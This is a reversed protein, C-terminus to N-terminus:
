AEWVKLQPHAQNMRTLAVLCADHESKGRSGMFERLMPAVLRAFAADEVALDRVVEILSLKAKRAPVPAVRKAGDTASAEDSSLKAPPIGFLERRLYASLDEPQGPATDPRQKPGPGAEPEVGRKSGKASKTYQLEVPTPKWHTTVGQDRYLSWITRVVFARLQRDPSETLRFLASPIALEEYRSILAMGIRRTAKDLSECFRYVGEENLLERGLRYHQTERGEPALFAREFFAKVDAYPQECLEVVEMLPPAWRALEWEGLEEGLKRLTPRAERLLPSVRAWSFFERPMEAGPDVQRETLAPGLLQHHHKIYTIAFDRLPTEAAGPGTAMEWLHECGAQTQDSSLERKGGVLMQLFATESIIKVESGETQLKEAKVMKSGKKGQGFLPSGEDGIVLYDLTKTVSGANKGNANDVKQEAEARTMTSLKGTFLFTLGKLDVAGGSAQAEVEAGAAAEPAFDAPVLAKLMYNLAFNHYDSELRQVLTMLWAFGLEAPSFQRVDRLVSRAFEGLGSDYELKRAWSRDSAKLEAVWPDENWGPHYALTRWFGVGFARAKLKEEQIWQRVTRSSMPHLISRRWFNVDIDEPAFHELLAVLAFNAADTRLTEEDFMSTFYDAGLSKLKHTKPLQERAFAVVKHESSLLREKFWAPTLEGAGFHKRLAAVAVDHGYATGLLAGWSALGVQDRPDLEDLLAFALKRVDANDNNALRILESLPLDRAHTRAYAAAYKRAEHSPSDLLRLVAEHLGLTRFSAEEFKPVNKLLWVVFEHVTASEVMVLRAVWSAEVERLVTRFDTKLAEVAFARVKEARARELLSFLPRPTRQWAEAFARHAIAESPASWFRFSAKGYAKGGYHKYNRYFIHNAIWTKNWNVGEPYFRLVDVAADAYGAPFSEGKRRLYRWARRVLYLLTARKVEYGSYHPNSIEADFRAALAGMLEGDDRAESEKFIRKLARWPGWKVPVRQIIELLSQRAYAGGQEWLGLVIEHLWLRDPLPVEADPSELERWGQERYARQEEDSKLSFRWSRLEDLFRQYTLAGERVPQTIPPDSASTLAVILGPLAPDEARWARRVDELCVGEM